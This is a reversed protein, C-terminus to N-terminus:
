KGESGSNSVPMKRLFKTIVFFLCEFLYVDLNYSDRQMDCLYIGCCKMLRPVLHPLHDFKSGQWLVGWLLRQYGSMFM